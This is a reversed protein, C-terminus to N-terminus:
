FERTLIYTVRFTKHLNCSVINGKWTLLAYDRAFTILVWRLCAWTKILPYIIKCLRPKPNRRSCTCPRNFSPKKYELDFIMNRGLYFHNERAKAKKQKHSIENKRVNYSDSSLTAFIHDIAVSDNVPRAPVAYSTHLQFVSPWLVVKLFGYFYKSWCTFVDKYCYTQQREFREHTKGSRGGVLFLFLDEWNNVCFVFVYELFPGIHKEGRQKQDWSRAFLGTLNPKLLSSIKM